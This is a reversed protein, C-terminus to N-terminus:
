VLCGASYRPQLDVRLTSNRTEDLFRNRIAEISCSRGNESFGAIRNAVLFCCDLDTLTLSLPHSKALADAHERDHRTLDFEM